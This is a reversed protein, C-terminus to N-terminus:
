YEKELIYSYMKKMTLNAIAAAIKRPLLRTLVFYSLRNRFGPIFLTKRGLVNLAEEAVKGPKMVNPKILGYHPHTALYAPTSTAGAICAMVEIDYSKLESYLSEALNWTFAKTAAYPAVLQMGILGALSSMLLVGGAHKNQKLWTVYAHVLKIPTLTNIAIIKDLEEETYSVLPQIKSFAANYILLRCDKKQIALMIERTANGHSLDICLTHTHIGFKEEVRGALTNLPAPQNDVMLINMGRRALAITYAEGLGEAAGALVAWPGYKNRFSIATM